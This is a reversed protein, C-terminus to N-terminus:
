CSWPWDPFKSVFGSVCSPAARESPGLAVSLTVRNGDKSQAPSARRVLLQLDGGERREQQRVGAAGFTCVRPVVPRAEREPCLRGDCGQCQVYTRPGHLRYTGPARVPECGVPAATPTAPDVTCPFGPGPLAGHPAYQYPAARAPQKTPPVPGLDSGVATPSAMPEREHSM